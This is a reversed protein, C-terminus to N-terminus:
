DKVQKLKEEVSKVKGEMTLEKDRRDDIRIITMSRRAGKEFPVEHLRALLPFLVELEGEVITGMPTLQYKIGPTEQLVRHADAVYQSISTSGTGVPAIVVELVAM